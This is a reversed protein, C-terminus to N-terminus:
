VGQLRTPPCVQRDRKTHMAGKQNCQSSRRQPLHKILRWKNEMIIVKTHPEILKVVMPRPYKDKDTTHAVHYASIIDDLSCKSEIAQFIDILLSRCDEGQSEVIGEIVVNSNRLTHANTNATREVESIM